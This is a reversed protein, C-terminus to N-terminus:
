AGRASSAASTASANLISDSASATASGAPRHGLDAEEAPDRNQHEEFFRVVRTGVKVSSVGLVLCYESEVALQYSARQWMGLKPRGRTPM